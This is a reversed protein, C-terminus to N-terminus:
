PTGSAELEAMQEERPDVGYLGVLAEFLEPQRRALSDPREFFRETAVAFLEAPHTAAYRTLFSKGFRAKRMEQRVLREWAPISAPAVLAPVGDAVNGTDAGAYDLVHALEHLVVNSGSEPHEWAERVAAASLVVPGQGHVMGDYSSDGSPGVELRHDPDATYHADDFIDPYFLFTRETPFTWDPRGHLLLAAGAAVGLRLDDDLEVGQGEFHADALFRQVAGEFRRQEAAPLRTYFPVRRGLWERYAPPFPARAARWQRLPRRLGWALVAAGAGLGWWAGGPLGRADAVVGVGFGVLLAIALPFLLVSRPM